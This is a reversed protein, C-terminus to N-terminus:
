VPLVSIIYGGVFLSVLNAVVAHLLARLRKERIFIPLAIMETLFVFFEGIILSFILYSPMLSGGSNLWINLVGQTVLNIALFVLWSRRQRFGFLFFIIGETLLTLLVRISVLLASRLPYTGPTLKGNSVDLMFVNNYGELPAGLTCEFSEGNTIVKFRYEGGSKLDRKYFAYYGEWAVRRALAKLQMENSILVISLDKPPNSVLIVLAPPEASNASVGAPLISLILMCLMIVMLLHKGTKNM